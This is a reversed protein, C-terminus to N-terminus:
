KKDEDKKVIIDKKELVYLNKEPLCIAQGKNFLILDGIYIGGSNLSAGNPNSSSIGHCNAGMSIVRGFILNGGEVIIGGEKKEEEILIKSNIAIYKM